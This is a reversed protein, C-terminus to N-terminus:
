GLNFSKATINNVIKGNKLDSFFFVKCVAGDGPLDTDELLIYGNKDSTLKVSSFHTMRNEVDYVATIATVGTNASGIDCYGGLTSSSSGSLSILKTEHTIILDEYGVTLNCPATIATGNVYLANSIYDPLNSTITLQTGAQVASASSITEGSCTVTVTDPFTIIPNTLRELLAYPSIRGHGFYVDYGTDGLDVSTETILKKFRNITLTPDIGKAIAAVAAVIPTSFSTGANFTYYTNYYAWDERKCPQIGLGSLVYGPATVFVSENFQSFYALEDQQTTAGVGIVCDYGAPYAVPTASGGNGVSAFMMVGNQNAYDIVNTLTKFSVNFGFSMSIIDCQYEDVALRIADCIDVANGKTGGNGDASFAKLPIIKVNPAIGALGKGNNSTAAIIGSVFTGHGADDETDTNEKITNFGKLIRNQYDLDEHDTDIGSDIIAIKIEGLETYKEWVKEMELLQPMWQYSYYTDNPASFLEAIYNPEIYEIYSPDVFDYIDDINNATYVNPLASLPKVNSSSSFLMPIECNTKFIYGDYEAASVTTTILLLLLVATFIRAKM